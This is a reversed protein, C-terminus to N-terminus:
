NDEVIGFTDSYSPGSLYKLLSLGFNNEDFNVNRRIILQQKIPDFMRYSKLKNSHGMMICAHGKTDLKKGCDELMHEWSVCGFTRLHGISPNKGCWNEILTVQDVERM